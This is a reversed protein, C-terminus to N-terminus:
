PKKTFSIIYLFGDNVNLPDILWGNVGLIFGFGLQLGRLNQDLVEEVTM